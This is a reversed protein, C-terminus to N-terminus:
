YSAPKIFVIYKSLEIHNVKQCRKMTYICMIISLVLKKFFMKCFYRKNFFYQKSVKFFVLNIDLLIFESSKSNKTDTSCHRVIYEKVTIIVKRMFVFEKIIEQCPKYLPELCELNM